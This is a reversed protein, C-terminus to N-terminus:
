LKHNLLKLKNLKRMYKYASVFVWCILYVFMVINLDIDSDKFSGFNYMTIGWFLNWFVGVIIVHKLFWKYSFGEYGTIVCTVAAFHPHWFSGFYWAWLELKTLSNYSKDTEKINKSLLVNGEKGQKMIKLLFKVILNSMKHGVKKLLKGIRFNIYYAIFAGLTIVFFTMVGRMPDGSTMAMGTLIVISGPFYINVGVINEIISVIGIAILGYNEFFHELMVGLDDLSPIVNSKSLLHLLSFIALFMLPTGIARIFLVINKM